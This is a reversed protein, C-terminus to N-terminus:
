TVMETWKSRPAGSAKPLDNTNLRPLLLSDAAGIEALNVETTVGLACGRQRLLRLLKEDWAGHPYCMVWDRQGVGLEQMFRLSEDVERQQGQTDLQDLWCHDAGHSGVTMGARVMLRLQEKTMYLEEALAQESVGVFQQFLENAIRGRLAEPLAMQLMKKIYTVEPTDWKGKVAHREKYRQLPELDFEGRAREVADDITRVLQAKDECSALVYHIKNVDLVRREEICRASPFFCGHLGRNHLVPFVNQFHDAYGDDFTLLAANRPLPRGGQVAEIVQQATVIEYWRQLYGIQEEFQSRELGKIEGYRSGVIPRVYHYMVITLYSM